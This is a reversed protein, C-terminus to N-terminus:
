QESRQRLLPVVVMPLGASAGALRRLHGCPSPGLDPSCLASTKCAALDRILDQTGAGNQGIM